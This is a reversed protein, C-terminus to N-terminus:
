KGAYWFGRRWAHPRLREELADGLPPASGVALNMEAQAVSRIGPIVVSVAAPKLAFKLAATALSPEEDGVTQRIAEVRQVTRALRDGAFFRNRIDGDAFRTDATLKGTLASEDLAVRVIVGVHSQQAAPFLEAQPEQEFINYVVQVTDVWKERMLDIVSNQDHEPTSVGIARLKGEKRLERLTEFAHPNKNWARTWTHLQVLDLCDTGLDRLSREVRERVHTASFRDEIRDYPSPPWAGAQPAIKTAVYIRESKGRERLAQAIVRESHGNGYNQATDVFNCGLDFSRHLAAISDQDTQTGWGGGVAWGGFGIESVQWELGGLQRYRM